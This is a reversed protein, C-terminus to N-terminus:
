HPSSTIGPQYSEGFGLCSHVCSSSYGIELVGQPLLQHKGTFYCSCTVCYSMLLLCYHVMEMLPIPRTNIQRVMNPYIKNVVRVLFTLWILLSCFSPPTSHMSAFLLAM